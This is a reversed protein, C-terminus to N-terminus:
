SDVRRAIKLMESTVCVYECESDIIRRNKEARLISIRLFQFRHLTVNVVKHKNQRSETENLM